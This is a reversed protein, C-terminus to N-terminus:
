STLTIEVADELQYVTRIISICENILFQLDGENIIYEKYYNPNYSNQGDKEDPETFGFNLIQKKQLESYQNKGTLFNDSVIEGLIHNSAKMPQYQLYYDKLNIILFDIGEHNTLTDQIDAILGTNTDSWTYTRTVPAVVKVNKRKKFILFAIIAIPIAIMLLIRLTDLM